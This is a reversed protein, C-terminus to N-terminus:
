GDSLLFVSSVPNQFKREKLAKMALRMGSCINTGGGARLGQIANKIVVQNDKNARNLPLLRRASNNFAILM